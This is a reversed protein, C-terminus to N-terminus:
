GVGEGPESRDQSVLASRQRIIRFAVGLGLLLLFVPTLWLWLTELTLRPRFLIFDGYRVRMHERIEADTSGAELLERVERRLDGALGVPSDAISQNQCQMCRLEQSLARYREQLVPDSMEVPDIALAPPLSFWFLWCLLIPLSIHGRRKMARATM